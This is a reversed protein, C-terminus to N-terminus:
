SGFGGAFNVILDAVQEGQEVVAAHGSDRVIALRADPIGAAIARSHEIPFLEDHDAAIVLTPAEIRPFYPTVDFTEVIRLIAAGGAFFQPPFAAVQRARADVFDPSQRRLWATSFTTPAMKRFFQAGDGGNAAAEAAERLEKADASMKATVRDVATAPMLTIVKEPRRAALAIAVEAGFSTGFVHARAIGHHDLLEVVDDAHEDLSSPFPGPTLAQGRFDCRIIKFRDIIRAVLADWSAISMLGGNLLVLPPGHGDIKHTLM